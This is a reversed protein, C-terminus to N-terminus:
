RVAWRKECSVKTGNVSGGGCHGAELLWAANSQAVEIGIQCLVRAFSRFGHTASPHTTPVTLRRRVVCRVPMISDFRVLSSCMWRYLLIMVIAIAVAIAFSLLASRLSLVRPRVDYLLTSVIGVLPELPSPQPTCAIVFWLMCTAHAELRQHHSDVSQAM